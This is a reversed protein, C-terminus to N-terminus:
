INKSVHAQLLFWFWVFGIKAHKFVFLEVLIQKTSTKAFVFFLKFNDLGQSSNKGAKAGSERIASASVTGDDM